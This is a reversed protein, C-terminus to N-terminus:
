TERSRGVKEDGMWKVAKTPLFRSVVFHSINQNAGECGKEAFGKLAAPLKRPFPSNYIVM